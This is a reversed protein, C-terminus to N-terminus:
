AVVLDRWRSRDESSRVARGNFSTMENDIIHQYLDGLAWRTGVVILEGDPELLNLTDRYFDIVKNRQEASNINERVVLDDMIIWDYHQSTQTKDVGTTAVTAEAHARRRQAVVIEDVNWRRSQFNGFIVPLLSKDTLYESIKYLFHRANDWVANAILGRTDFNNLIKQISYGITIISSKLHGRPILILKKKGSSKIFRELDDHLAGWERMLLVERCLFRLNERCLKQFKAQDSESLANRAM